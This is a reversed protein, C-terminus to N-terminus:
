ECQRTGLTFTGTKDTYTVSTKPRCADGSSEGDTITEMNHECTQKCGDPVGNNWLPYEIDCGVSYYPTSVDVCKCALYDTNNLTNKYCTFNDFAEGLGVIQPSKGAGCATCYYLQIGQYNIKYGLAANGSITAASKHVTGTCDREYETINLNERLLLCDTVDWTYNETDWEAVGKQNSKVFNGDAWFLATDGVIDFESCSKENSVCGLGGNIKEAHVEVPTDSTHSETCINKGNYFLTCAWDQSPDLNSCTFTTYCADITVKGGDSKPFNVGDKSVGNCSKCEYGPQSLMGANCSANYHNESCELMGGPMCAVAPLGCVIAWGFFVGIFGVFHKFM